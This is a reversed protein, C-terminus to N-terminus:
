NPLSLLYFLPSTLPETFFFGKESSILFSSLCSFVFATYTPTPPGLSLVLHYLACAPPSSLRSLSSLPFPISAPICLALLPCLLCLCTRHSCSISVSSIACLRAGYVRVKSPHISIKNGNANCRLSVIGGVGPVLEALNKCSCHVKAERYSSSLTLACEGFCRQPCRTLLFGQKELSGLGKNM